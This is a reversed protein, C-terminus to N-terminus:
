AYLSVVDATILGGCYDAWRQMLVHRHDLATQRRYARETMDGVAHSLAAEAIERPTDTTNGAWDRFSSRFGHITFNKYGMRKKLLNLMAINSLPKGRSGAFIYKSSSLQKLSMVLEFAADSLPVEHTLGAKMRESPITWVKTEFDIEDFTANLTESTRSATLIVFELASASMAARRRLESMFEPIDQYPMAAHHKINKRNRVSLVGDLGGKWKAPNEGGLWRRSRAYDFIIELHARVIRGTEPTKKWVPELINLVDDRNISEIPRNHLKKCLEFATREWKRKTKPSKEDLKRAELCKEAVKRFNHM